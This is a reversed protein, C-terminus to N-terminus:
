ILTDNRTLEWFYPKWLVFTKCLQMGLHSM